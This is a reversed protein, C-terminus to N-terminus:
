NPQCCAVEYSEDLRQEIGIAAVLNAAWTFLGLDALRFSKTGSVATSGPSIERAKAHGEDVAVRGSRVGGLSISISRVLSYEMQYTREDEPAQTSDIALVIQFETTTWGLTTRVHEFLWGKWRAGCEPAPQLPAPLGNPGASEELSPDPVAYSAAWFTPHCQSWSQPDTLKRMEALPREVDMTFSAKTLGSFFDFTVGTEPFSRNCEERPPEFDPQAELLTVVEDMELAAGAERTAAAADLAAVPARLRLLQDSWMRRLPSTYLKAVARRRRANAFPCGDLALREIAADLPLPRYEAPVWDSSGFRAHFYVSEMSARLESPNACPAAGDGGSGPRRESPAEPTSDSPQAAAAGAVCFSLAALLCRTRSWRKPRDDNM